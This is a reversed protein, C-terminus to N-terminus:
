RKNRYMAADARALLAEYSEPADTLEAIGFSARAPARSDELDAEIRQIRAQADATTSRPLFLAFEDGSLRGLVDGTKLHRQCTRALAQLAADGAAHGHRDNIKKLGDLDVMALVAPEGRHRAAAMGARVKEEFFARSHAGTLVDHTLLHRLRANDEYLSPVALGLHSTAALGILVFQLTLAQADLHLVATAAVLLLGFLAIGALACLEGETHVIWLQIIIAVFLLFPLTEQEPFLAAGALVLASTGLLVALKLAARSSMGPGRRGRAFSQIGEPVTIGARGALKVLVVACLSGLTLLGTYDGIWWPALLGPFEDPHIMGTRTLGWAGLLAALGSAVAGGILMVSVKRLTTRPSAEWALRRLLLAVSGYAGTHTLAFVLGSLAIENGSLGQAYLRDTILASLLCALWLVPLARAGLVLLASFTVAAPPFWLSAHPAYELLTSAAFAGLWVALLAAHVGATAM